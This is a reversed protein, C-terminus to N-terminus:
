GDVVGKAKIKLIVTGDDDVSWHYRSQRELLKRRETLPMMRTLYLLSAKEITDAKYLGHVGSKYGDSIKIPPDILGKSIWNRITRSSVPVLELLEEMTVYDDTM